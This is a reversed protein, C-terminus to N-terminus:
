RRKGMVTYRTVEGNKYDALIELTGVNWKDHSSATKRKKPPKPASALVDQESGWCFGTPAEGFKPYL